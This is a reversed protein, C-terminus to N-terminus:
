VVQPFRVAGPRYRGGDMAINAGNVGAGRPSLIWAPVDAVEEIMVFRHPPFTMM